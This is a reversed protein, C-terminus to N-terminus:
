YFYFGGQSDYKRNLYGDNAKEYEEKTIEVLPKRHLHKMYSFWSVLEDDVLRYEVSWNGADRYYTDGNLRMETHGLRIYKPVDDQSVRQPKSLKKVM